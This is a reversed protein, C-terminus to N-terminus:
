NNNLLMELAQFSLTNSLNVLGVIVQLIKQLLWKSFHCQFFIHDMTKGDESCLQCLDAADAGHYPTEEVM